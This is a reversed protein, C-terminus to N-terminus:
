RSCFVLIALDIDASSIRQIELESRMNTEVKVLALIMNRRMRLAGARTEVAQTPAERVRSPKVHSGGHNDAM